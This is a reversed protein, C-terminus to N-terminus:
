VWCCNMLSMAVSWARPWFTMRDTPPWFPVILTSSAALALSNALLTKARM